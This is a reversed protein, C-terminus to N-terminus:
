IGRFQHQPHNHTVVHTNPVSGLDEVFTVLAQLQVIESGEGGWRTLVVCREM